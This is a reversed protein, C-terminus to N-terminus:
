AATPRPRATVDRMTHTLCLHSSGRLVESARQQRRQVSVSGSLAGAHAECQRTGGQRGRRAECGIRGDLGNAVLVPREEELQARGNPKVVLREGNGCGDAPRVGGPCTAHRSARGYVEPERVVLVREHQQHARTISMPPEILGDRNQLLCSVGDGGGGGVGSAGGAGRRICAIVGRDAWPWIGCPARKGGCGSIGSRLPDRLRTTTEDCSGRQVHVDCWGNSAGRRHATSRPRAYTLSDSPISRESASMRAIKRRPKDFFRGAM